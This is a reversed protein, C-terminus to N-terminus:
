HRVQAELDSIFRELAADLPAVDTIPLAADYALAFHFVASRTPAELHGATVVRTFAAYRRWPVFQVKGRAARAAIVADSPRELMAAAMARYVLTAGSSELGSAQALRIAEEDEGALFAVGPAVVALESLTGRREMAQLHHWADHVMGLNVEAEVLSSFALTSEPRHNLLELAAQRADVFAQRAREPEGALELLSGWQVLVDAYAVRVDDSDPARQQASKLLALAQEVYASRRPLDVAVASSYAMTSLNRAQSVHAAEDDPSAALAAAGYRLAQDLLPGVREEDALGALHRSLTSALRNGVVSAPELALAREALALGQEASAGETDKGELNALRAEVEFRQAELLLHRADAREALLGESLRRALALASRADDGRGLTVAVEALRLMAEALRVREDEPARDLETTREYHAVATTTVAKVLDEEGPVGVLQKAVDDLFRQAFQRAQDRERRVRAQAALAAVLLLAVVGAIAVTFVRNRSIFRRVLEAASYRYSAVRRGDVFAELERTLAQVSELGGEQPPLRTRRAIALLDKPAGRLPRADEGSLLASLMDGLCKLDIRREESRQEGRRARGWDLVYVEGFRGLMVSDSSLDRHVVGEEHAASICRCAVVFPPLLALREDVSKASALANTLSRGSVRQMTCYVEGTARRGLEYVPVVAPHDLHGTLRAEDFLQQEDGDALKVAVDRGLVADQWLVIKGTRAGGLTEVDSAAPSYRGPQEDVAASAGLRAIPDPPTARPGTGLRGLPLLELPRAPDGGGDREARAALREVFRRTVADVLGRQQLVEALTAESRGVLERSASLVDDPTCYGLQAALVGFLLDGPQSV